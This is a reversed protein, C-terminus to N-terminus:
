ESRLAQMADVSAARQAPLYAALLSVAVLVVSALLPLLPSSPQVGYLMTRLLYGEGVAGALGLALGVFLLRMARALVMTLVDRRTAGLAICVGIERTRRAVSYTLVGYWGVVTLLLAIVAFSGLLVAQFRPQAIASASLEEMTRVRYVPIQTDLSAIAARASSELSRPSVSARVVITGVGWPLQKYPFYYIPEPSMELASQKANDVLGVIQAFKVNNKGNTAGSAIRNGIIEEGPSFKDAFAKNVIFVPPAAADDHESFNRGMLLSIGLTSFYGPTVIAMDSRSHNSEPQLRGEIDFGIVIQSGTM